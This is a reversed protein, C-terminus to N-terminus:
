AVKELSVLNTLNGTAGAKNIMAEVNTGIGYRHCTKVDDAHHRVGDVTIQQGSIKTVIVQYSKGGVSVVLTQKQNVPWDKIKDKSVSDFDFTVGAAEGYVQGFDDNISQIKKNIDEKDYRRVLLMVVLLLFLGAVFFYTSERFKSEIEGAIGDKLSQISEVQSLIIGLASEVSEATSAYAKSLSIQEESVQKVNEALEKVTKSFAGIQSAEQRQRVALQTQLKELAQKTTAADQLLQNQKQMADFKGKLASYFAQIYRIDVPAWIGVNQAQNKLDALPIKGSNFNNFSNFAPIFNSQLRLQEPLLNMYSTNSLRLFATVAIIAPPINEVGDDISIAKVLSEKFNAFASDDATETIFLRMDPLFFGIEVALRQIESVSIREYNGLNNFLVAIAGYIEPSRFEEPVLKLYGRASATQYLQQGLVYIPVGQEIDVKNLSSLYSQWKAPDEATQKFVRVATQQAHVGSVFVLILALVLAQFLRKM